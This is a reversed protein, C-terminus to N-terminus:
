ASRGADLKALRNDAEGLGHRWADFDAWPDDGGDLRARVTAM